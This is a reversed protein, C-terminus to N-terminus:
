DGYLKIGKANSGFFVQVQYSTRSRLQSVQIMRCFCLTIHYHLIAFCVSYISRVSM